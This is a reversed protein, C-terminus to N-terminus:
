EAGAASNIPVCLWKHCTNKRRHSKVANTMHVNAVQVSGRSEERIFELTDIMDNM